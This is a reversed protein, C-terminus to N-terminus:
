RGKGEGTARRGFCWWYLLPIFFLSVFTGFFMGGIITLSLPRQLTNGIDSGFLFPLVSLCTTMSTMLIAHLRKKGGEHIADLIEYDHERRLVNITDIKLISDNLIIGCIVILGILSMVNLSAGTIFLVVFTGSMSIPLECLVILPQAFSGFQAALIFYLLVVSLGFISAINRTLAKQEFLAGTFTLKLFPFNSLASKLKKMAQEPAVDNLGVKVYRGDKGGNILKYSVRDRISAIRGLPFLKGNTNGVYTGSFIHDLALPENGIFVPIFENGDKISFLNARSTLAELKHYVADMPISYLSLLEPDVVIEKNISLPFVLKNEKGIVHQCMNLISDMRRPAPFAFQGKVGIHMELLNQSGSFVQEFITPPPAINFIAEPYKRNLEKMLTKALFENLSPNINIFYLECAAAGLGKENAWVYQQRAVYSEISGVHSLYPQILQCVRRENEEADINENWEIQVLLDNRKLAPLRESKLARLSLGGAVMLLLVFSVIWKQHAFAWHVGRSYWRTMISEEKIQQDTLKGKLISNSFLLLLTPLLILAIILSSSVGAAIAIAEDYFLSGAIGGMAILPLFVSLTALASAIVPKIVDMTGLLCADKFHIGAINRQVISDIVIIANDIMLGLGLVLGSLSIINISLGVLYFILLSIILAMPITVGILIPIRWNKIFLFLIIYALAGGVILDQRLNAISADLLATQDRTVNFEIQPYERRFQETMLRVDEKLENIKTKGQQILAINIGRKGGILYSGTNPQTMMSVKAIDSLKYVKDKWNFQINGIDEATYIDKGSFQLSYQYIGDKVAISGLEIRGRTLINGFDLQTLGIAVMAATDPRILLQPSITGTVDAMAIYPSQELRRKIVSEVLQSLRISLAENSNEVSSRFRINMYLVPIDTLSAKTVHPREIDSPLRNMVQDIKENAEIFAYHMSTGHRFKMYIVADGDTVQSEISELGALQGLETRVPNTIVSEMDEAGLSNYHLHVSIEPIEVNPLPSIPITFIAGIGLLILSIFISLVSIPSSFIVKM